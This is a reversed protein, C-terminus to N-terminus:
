LLERYRTMRSGKRMGTLIDLHLYQYEKEICYRIDDADLKVISDKEKSFKGIVLQIRKENITCNEVIYGTEEHVKINEDNLTYDVLPIKKKKPENTAVKKNFRDQFEQLSMEDFPISSETLLRKFETIDMGGKKKMLWGEGYSLKENHRFIPDSRMTSTTFDVPLSNFIAHNSDSYDLVIVVKGNEEVFTSTRIYDGMYKDLDERKVGKKILHHCLDDIFRTVRDKITKELVEQLIPSLEKFLIDSIENAAM